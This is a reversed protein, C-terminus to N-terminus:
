LIVEKARFVPGDQCIKGYKKDTTMPIVCAFCTGVGCGMREEFSLYGEQESLQDSVAKLMPMPGCSFYADFHEIEPIIDTVLGKHGYTGDNTVIHTDAVDEFAREYFVAHKTQYGLIAHVKIGREKLTKALFYLPPVGVGGGILLAEKVTDDIPYSSGNPGIVDLMAGPIIETLADTGTGFIKYIITVISTEKEVSAISIPRRLTFNPISIHLFQGPAAHQCVYENKLTMEYTELAIQKNSVVEMVVKKM